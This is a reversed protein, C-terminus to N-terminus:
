HNAKVLSPFNSRGRFCSVRSARRLDALSDPDGVGCRLRKGSERSHRKVGPTRGSTECSEVGEVVENWSLKSFGSCGSFHSGRLRFFVLTAVELTWSSFLDTGTVTVRPAEAGRRETEQVRDPFHPVGRVHREGRCLAFTQMLRKIGVRGSSADHPLREGCRFGERIESCM